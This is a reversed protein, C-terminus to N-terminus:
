GPRCGRSRKWQRGDGREEWSFDDLGLDAIRTQYCDAAMVVSFSSILRDVLDAYDVLCGLEDALCTVGRGRIGCPIIYRFYEMQPAINLAFGHFSVWHSVGIGIAGIKKQGVWAGPFGSLRGAKLGYTAVLRIMVEEYLYILRHLDRTEGQLKIIPYGVLQGPGHYTVDGGRDICYVQVGLNALDEDNVLINRRNGSRGITYVPHHEVLLLLNPIRDQARAAVLFQQYSYATQYEMMGLNIVACRSKDTTRRSM